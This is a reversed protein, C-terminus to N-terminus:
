YKCTDNTCNKGNYGDTCRCKYENILDICTGNSQCPQSACEDNDTPIFINLGKKM